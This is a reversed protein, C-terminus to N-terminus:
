PTVVAVPEAAAAPAAVERILGADIQIQMWNNHVALTPADPLIALNNEPSNDHLRYGLVTQFWKKAGDYKAKAAEAVVSEADTVTKGLDVALAALDRAAVDALDKKLDAEVDAVTPSSTSTNMM